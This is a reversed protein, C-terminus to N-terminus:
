KSSKGYQVGYLIDKLDKNNSDIKQGGVEVFSEYEVLYETEVDISEMSNIRIEGPGYEPKKQYALIGVRCQKLSLSDIEIVSLDKSVLGLEARLININNGNMFSKEGVSVGKDGIMEIYINNAKLQSGSIDIADNGCNKFRCNEIIGNSYDSDFADSYTNEFRSNTLVYTSRVVNLCDESNNNLFTVNNMVIDSEYVTISAPLSWTKFKPNALNKFIVYEFMSSRRDAMIIIGQGSSDESIISVPYEISGRIMVPSYSLISAGMAINITQGQDVVFTYGGPIVLNTKIDLRLSTTSIELTNENIQLGPYNYISSAQMFILEPMVVKSSFSSPVMHSVMISDYGLDHYQLRYYYHNIDKESDSKYEFMEGPLLVYDELTGQSDQQDSYGVLGIPKESNNTVQFHIEKEVDTNILISLNINRSLWKRLYEQRNYLYNIPFSYYPEESHIINLEKTFAEKNKNIVDDLYSKSSLKALAAMYHRVFQKDSFLRSSILNWAGIGIKQNIHEIMLSRNSQDGDQLRLSNYERAIPEVLHTIPNYYMKLNQYIASHYGTMLDVIAYYKAYKKLDLVKAPALDGNIFAHWKDKLISTNDYLLDSKYVKENFIKITDSRNTSSFAPSFLLGERAQRNELLEKNFHEEVAYIGHSEGNINMDVFFYRLSILGENSELAHGFFEAMHYRSKPPLLKFEKMGFIKQGGKVEVKYARKESSGIMDLNQGTPSIKVEYEIEDITIKAKAEISKDSEVLIGRRLAKTRAYNLKQIEKFKIDMNLVEPRSILGNIYNPIVKYKTGVIGYVVEQLTAATQDKSLKMGAYLLLLSYVISIILLTFYFLTRKRFYYRRKLVNIVSIHEIYKEKIIM